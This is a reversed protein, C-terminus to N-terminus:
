AVTASPSIWVAVAMHRARWLRGGELYTGAAPIPRSDLAACFRGALLDRQGPLIPCGPGPTPSLEMIARCARAGPALRHASVTAPVPAGQSTRGDLAAAGRVVRIRWGTAALTKSFSFVAFSRERLKPTSYFRLTTASVMTSYTSTCETPWCPHHASRSSMAALADLWQCRGRHLESEAGSVIVLRTPDGLARRVQDWDFRFKPASANHACLSWGAM